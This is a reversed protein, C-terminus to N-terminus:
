IINGAVTDLNRNSKQQESIMDRMGGVQQQTGAHLAEIMGLMQSKTDLNDKQLQLAQTKWESQQAVLADTNLEPVAQPTPTSPGAVSSTTQNTAGFLDINQNTALDIPASITSLATKNADTLSAFNGTVSKSYDDFKQTIPTAADATPPQVAKNMSDLAADNGGMLAKWASSIGNSISSWGKKIWGGIKKWGNWVAGVYWKVGAGIPGLANTSSNFAGQYDFNKITTFADSTVDSLKGWAHWIGMAGAGIASGFSGIMGGVSKLAGSYDFDKVSAFAGTVIGSLDDWNAYILGVGAGVAAGIPGLMSGMGAFEAVTQLTEKGKFDPLANMALGAGVGLLAGPGVARMLGAGGRLLGAGGKLAGKVLGGSVSSGAVRGALRGAGSRAAGYGRSIGSRTATYGRSLGSRTSSLPHRAFHSINSAARGRFDRMSNSMREFRDMRTPRPPGMEPVHPAHTSPLHHASEELTNAVSSIRNRRSNRNRRNKKGKKGKDNDFDHDNGSQNSNINVVRLANGASFKALAHEFASQVENGTIQHSERKGGIKFRESLLDKVRGGYSAVASGAMKATQWAAWAVLVAGFIGLKDTLWGFTSAVTDVVNVVMSGFKVIAVAFSALGEGFAILKEPTLNKSLFLGFDEAMKSLKTTFEGFAPSDAFTEFGKMLNELGNFFGTRLTGSIKDIIVGLNELFRTVNKTKALEEPSKSALEKMESIMVIAEKAAKNGTAAQFQLTAMNKMGEAVFKRNFDAAAQDDFTGNAVKQAMNDMLSTVGFLGADIFTQSADSMIASGSGATQALMKSLTKGAEGPLASMYIVAKNLSQGYADQASSGMQLMKARLSEDRLANNSAKLLDETFAGTMASAKAMEVALVRTNAVAKEQTLANVNGFLRQTELYTGLNTNLQASTLGLQGVDMLSTRLAKSMDGFANAGIAAVVTSNKKLADAFVSLPLAANAAAQQMALMSGGFTQGYQSLEQYTKTTDSIADVMTKLVGGVGFAAGLAKLAGSATSASRTVDQFTKITKNVGGDLTKVNKATSSFVSSLKKNENILDQIVKADGSKTSGGNSSGSKNSKEEAKTNKETASTGKLVNRNLANVSDILKNVVDDTLDAM